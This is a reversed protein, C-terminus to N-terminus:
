LRDDLKRDQKIIERLFTSYIAEWYGCKIHWPLRWKILARVDRELKDLLKKRELWIKEM